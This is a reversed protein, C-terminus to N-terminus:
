DFEYAFTDNQTYNKLSSKIGGKIRSDRQKTIYEMM